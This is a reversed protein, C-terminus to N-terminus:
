FRRRRTLNRQRGGGDAATVQVAYRDVLTPGIIGYSAGPPSRWSSLLVCIPGSSFFLPTKCRLGKMAVLYRLDRLTPDTCSRTSVNSLLNTMETEVFM